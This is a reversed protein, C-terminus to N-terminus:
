AHRQGPPRGLGFAHRVKAIAQAGGGPELEASGTEAGDGITLGVPDFTRQAVLLQLRVSRGVGIDYATTGDAHVRTLTPTQGRLLPEGIRVDLFRPCGALLFRDRDQRSALVGDYDRVGNGLDYLRTGDSLLVLTGRRVRHRRHLRFWAQVCISGLPRSGLLETGRMVRYRVLERLANVTVLSSAPPHEFAAAQVGLGLAVVCAPVGLAPVWFRARSVARV